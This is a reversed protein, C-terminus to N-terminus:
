RRQSSKLSGNLSGSSVERAKIKEIVRVSAPYIVWSYGSWFIVRYNKGKKLSGGIKAGALSYLGFGTKEMESAM